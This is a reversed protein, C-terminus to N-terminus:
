EGVSEAVEDTVAEAETDPISARAAFALFNENTPRAGETDIMM